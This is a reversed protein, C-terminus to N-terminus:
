KDLVKNGKRINETAELPQLNELAWAKLFNPHEMSDYPLKSHPYIHDLHWEGYNNWNMWPEFQKELHEKLQPITYPLADLVSRGNKSGKNSTLEMSVRSSINGRLAFAPDNQKRNRERENREAKHNQTYIRVKKKYQEKNDQYYQRDTKRTREKNNQRWQHAQRKKKKKNDQYYQRGIEIRHERNNKVWQQLYAKKCKKCQRIHGDGWKSKGFEVLPKVEECKSCKKTAQEESKTKM